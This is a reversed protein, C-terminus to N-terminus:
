RSAKRRRRMELLLTRCCVYCYFIFVLYKGSDTSFQEMLICASWAIKESYGRVFTEQWESLLHRTGLTSWGGQQRTFNLPIGFLFAKQRELVAPFVHHYLGIFFSVLFFFFFFKVMMMVDDDDNIETTCLRKKSGSPIHYQPHRLSRM